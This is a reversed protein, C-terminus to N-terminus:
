YTVKFRRVLDRESEDGESCRDYGKIEISSDTSDRTVIVRACPVNISNANVEESSAIIEYKHITKSKQPVFVSNWDGLMRVHYLDGCDFRSVSSALPPDFTRKRFDNYLTCELASNAVNLAVQSRQSYVQKRVEKELISAFAIGISTLVTTIIVSMVLVSGKTYTTKAVTNFYRM